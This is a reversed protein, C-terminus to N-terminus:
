DKVGAEENSQLIATLMNPIKIQSWFSFYATKDPLDSFSSITVFIRALDRAGRQPWLSSRNSPFPTQLLFASGYWM